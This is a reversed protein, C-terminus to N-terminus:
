RAPNHGTSLREVIFGRMDDKSMSTIQPISFVICDSKGSIVKAHETVDTNRPHAGYYNGVGYRDRYKADFTEWLSFVIRRFFWPNLVASLKAIDLCEGATIPFAVSSWYRQDHETCTYTVYVSVSIGSAKLGLIVGGLMVAAREYDKAQIRWCGALNIVLTCHKATKSGMEVMQGWAEPVGQVYRAIDIFHGEDVRYVPDLRPTKNILRSANRIIDPHLRSAGAVDGAKATEEAYAWTSGSFRIRATDGDRSLRDKTAMDSPALAAKVFEMYDQYVYYEANGVNTKLM